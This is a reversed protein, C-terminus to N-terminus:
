KFESLKRHLSCMNGQARGFVVIKKGNEAFMNAIKRCKKSAHFSISQSASIKVKRTRFKASFYSKLFTLPTV